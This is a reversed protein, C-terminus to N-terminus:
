AIVKNRKLKWSHKLCETIVISGLDRIVVRCNCPFLCDNLNYDSLEM